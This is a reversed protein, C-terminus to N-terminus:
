HVHRPPMNRLLVRQQRAQRPRLAQLRGSNRELCQRAFSQNGVLCSFSFQPGIIGASTVLKAYADLADLTVPIGTTCEDTITVEGGYNYIDNGLGGSDNDTFTSGQLLLFSGAAVWICGAKDDARNSLFECQRVQVRSDSIYMGGAFSGLFGRYIKLGSMLNTATPGTSQFQLVRRTTEGDLTCKETVDSCVLDIQNKHTKFAHQPLMSATYTLGPSLSFITGPSAGDM